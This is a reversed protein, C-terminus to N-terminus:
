KIGSFCSRDGRVDTEVSTVRVRVFRYFDFTGQGKKSETALGRAGASQMSRNLKKDM